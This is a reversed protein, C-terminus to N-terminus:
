YKPRTGATEKLIRIRLMNLAALSAKRINRGRHEGFRFLESGTGSAGSVAIWVTGVPKDATGGDPGAIGSVAIAYDAGMRIRAQIAMQEVVERSVAGFRSISDPEVGLLKEKLDNAYAVISGLYWSSSGPVGTILSAIAGGTCSEATVVTLGNAMLLQGITEELTIEDYGYIADPIIERLSHILGDIETLKAGADGGRATIRLKVIGPSPLYALSFGAPLNKEWTRIRSALVSEAIGTIMITRQLIVPVKFVDKLAPIVSSEMMSIMEYPVGPMSIVVKGEREFWMGPATGAQNRIVRCNDPVLAQDRNLPNVPVNRSALLQEIDQLIIPDPILRSQFFDCLTKKTRDDNTPGLGGTILVLDSRNLSEQLSLRIEGPQDSISIIRNVPIGIESLHEGIWAANTDITQGILIEDGITIIEATPNMM